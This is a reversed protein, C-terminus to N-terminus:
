KPLGIGKSYVKGDTESEEVAMDAYDNFPKIVSTYRKIKHKKSKHNSAIQKRHSEQRAWETKVTESVEHGVSEIALTHAGQLGYNNVLIAASVRGTFTNLNRNTTIKPCSKSLMRNFAENKQTSEKMYTSKIAEHSLRKQMLKILSLEDQKTMKLIGKYKKRFKLGTKNKASICVSCSGCNTKRKLCRVINEPVNRLLRNMENLKEVKFDEYDNDNLSSVMCEIPLMEKSSCSMSKSLNSLSALKAKEEATNFELELRNRIDDAFWRQMQKVSGRTVQFMRKSFSHRSISKKICNALHRPDSFLEISGNFTTSISKKIKVDGDSTLSSVRVNDKQINAISQAAYVGEQAIPELNGLTASCKHDIGPCTVNKGCGRLRTGIVCIKNQTICDVVKGAGSVHEITSFVCQTAAQGPFNRIRNNYWGDVGLSVRSCHSLKLREESMSQDALEKLKMSATMIKRNICPIPGPYIGLSCLIESFQTAGISSFCLAMGLSNNLTSQVRGKKSMPQSQRNLKKSESNFACLSCKISWSSSLLRKETLRFQFEGRCKSNTSFHNHYADNILQNILSMNAIFYEDLKLTEKVSKSTGSTSRTTPAVPVSQPSETKKGLTWMKNGPRFGKRKSKLTKPM